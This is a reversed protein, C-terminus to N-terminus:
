EVSSIRTCVDRYERAYQRAYDGNDQMTEQRAYDGSFLNWYIYICVRMCM